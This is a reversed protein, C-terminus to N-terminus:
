VADYGLLLYEEVNLMDIFHSSLRILRIHLLILDKGVAVIKKEKKKKGDQCTSTNSRSACFTSQAM